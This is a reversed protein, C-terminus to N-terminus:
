RCVKIFDPPDRMVTGTATGSGSLKCDTTNVARDTPSTSFTLGPAGCAEDLETSQSRASMASLEMRADPRLSEVVETPIENIIDRAIHQIRDDSYLGYYIDPGIILGLYGDCYDPMSDPTYDIQMMVFVM